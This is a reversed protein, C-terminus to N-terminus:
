ANREDVLARLMEFVAGHKSQPVKGFLELLLVQEQSLSGEDVGSYFEALTIDLAACICEISNRNPTFHKENFWDYITSEYIGSAKALRYKSWGRKDILQLIRDQVTM